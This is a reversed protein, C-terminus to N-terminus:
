VPSNDVLESKASKTTITLSAPLNLPLGTPSSRDAKLREKLIETERAQQEEVHHQQEEVRHLHHHEERREVLERKEVTQALSELPSRSRERTEIEVVNNDHKLQQVFEPRSAPEPFDSGAERELEM